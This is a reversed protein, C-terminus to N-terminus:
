YIHMIYMAVVPLVKHDERHIYSSPQHQISDMHKNYNCALMKISTIVHLLMIALEYVSRVVSVLIFIAIHSGSLLFWGNKFFEIKGYFQISICQTFNRTSCSINICAKIANMRVSLLSLDIFGIYWQIHRNM